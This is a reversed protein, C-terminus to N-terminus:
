FRYSAGISIMDIRARGTTTEGGFKGYDEYQLRIAINEWVAYEIGLGLLPATTTKSYSGPSIFSTLIPESVTGGPLPLPVGVRFSYDNKATNVALGLKAFLQFKDAVPLAAKGALSWSSTTYDFTHQNLDVDKVSYQFKGQRSYGGEIAWNRNFNYGIFLNYGTDDWKSDLARLPFFGPGFRPDPGSGGFDQSDFFAHSNGVAGGAYFGTDASISCQSAIALITLILFPLTKKPRMKKPLLKVV